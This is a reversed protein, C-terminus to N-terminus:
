KVVKVDKAPKAGDIDIQIRNPFNKRVFAAVSRRINSMQSNPIEDTSPIHSNRNVYSQCLSEFLYSISSIYRECDALEKANKMIEKRDDTCGWDWTFDSRYLLQGPEVGAKKWNGTRLSADIARQFNSVDQNPDLISRFCAGIACVVCNKSEALSERGDLMFWMGPRLNRVPENMIAKIIRNKTVSVVTM